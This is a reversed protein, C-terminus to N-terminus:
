DDSLSLELQTFQGYLPRYDTTRTGKRDNCAGCLPQLNSLDNSGGRQLPIVHDVTLQGRSGCCLCRNGYQACLAQWEDWTWSGGTGAWRARRRHWSALNVGPHQRAYARAEARRKDAHRWYSAMVQARGRAPNAAHRQRRRQNIEDGHLARDRQVRLRLCAKCESTVGCPRNPRPYFETRPKDVGCRSCRKMGEM